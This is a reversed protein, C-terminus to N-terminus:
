YRSGGVLIALGSALSLVALVVVALLATPRGRRWSELVTAALSIAPTAILTVVAASAMLAAAESNGALTAAFALVFLGVAVVQGLRLTRVTWGVPPREIM